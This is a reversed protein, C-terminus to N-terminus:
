NCGLEDEIEKMFDHDCIGDKGMLTKMWHKSAFNKELEKSFDQEAQESTCPELEPHKMIKYRNM